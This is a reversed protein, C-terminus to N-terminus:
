FRVACILADRDMLSHRLKSSCHNERSYMPGYTDEECSLLVSAESKIGKIYGLSM